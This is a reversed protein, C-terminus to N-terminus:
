LFLRQSTSVMILFLFGRKQTEDSKLSEQHTIAPSVVSFFLSRHYALNLYHAGLRVQSRSGGVDVIRWDTGIEPGTSVEM